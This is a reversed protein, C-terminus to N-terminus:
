RNLRSQVGNPMFNEALFLVGTSPDLYPQNIFTKAKLHFCVYRKGVRNQHAESVIAKLVSKATKPFPRPPFPPYICGWGQNM